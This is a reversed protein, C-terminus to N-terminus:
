GLHGCFLQSSVRIRNSAEVLVSGDPSNALFFGPALYCAIDWGALSSLLPVRVAAWFLRLVHKNISIEFLHAVSRTM